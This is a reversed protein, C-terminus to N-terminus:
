KDWWNAASHQTEGTAQSFRTEPRGVYWNGSPVIVTRSNPENRISIGGLFKQIRSYADQLGQFDEARGGKDPHWVMALKKFQDKLQQQMVQLQDKGNDSGLCYEVAEESYGLEQEWNM